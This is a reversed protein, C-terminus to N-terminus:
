EIRTGCPAPITGGEKERAFELYYQGPVDHLENVILAVFARQQPAFQGYFSSGLGMCSAKEDGAGPEDQALAPGSAAFLVALTTM